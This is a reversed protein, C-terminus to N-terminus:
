YHNTYVCISFWACLKNIIGHMMMHFVYIQCPSTKHTLRVHLNNILELM